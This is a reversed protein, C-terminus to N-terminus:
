ITNAFLPLCATAVQEIHRHDTGCCGGLVNLRPLQQKLEAYEQGLAVPDGIDLETAEDLEAHSKCSANARLGQIRELWRGGKRLVHAFHSPHACNIMYYSPYSATAEDVSEIASQLSQGTPLNGDTEVTFSIVVPMNTRDAAHAIGIAEEAYNLTMACVMDAATNAFTAIQEYHYREAQQISMDQDVVYGDARPGLCGSIVMPQELRSAARVEELLMIAQRNANALTERTYGLQAGWDASARWTPSELVLGIGFQEAIQTYTMYYQYLTARGERTQLMDFAAFYPLDWGNHFIFTTEAGGDTLFLDNSLQPLANRYRTM